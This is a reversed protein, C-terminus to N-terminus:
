IHILSLGITAITIYEITDIFATNYGGGLVGRTSNSLCSVYRRVASLNGFDLANATTSIIIYDIIDYNANPSDGDYGSAFWGRTENGSGGLAEREQTLDGFDVAIGSSQIQIYDIINSDNDPSRNGGAFVARGRGRQATTGGPPVMYSLTDFKTNDGFTTGHDEGKDPVFSSAFGQIMQVDNDSTTSTPIGQADENNVNGPDNCCLLKTDTSLVRSAASPVIGALAAASSGITLRFNSIFGDLGESGDDRAGFGIEDHTLDQSNTVPSGLSTGDM